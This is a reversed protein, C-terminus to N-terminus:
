GWPDLHAPCRSTVGWAWGQNPRENLRPRRSQSTAPRHASPSPEVSMSSLVSTSRVRQASRRDTNQQRLHPLSPFPCSYGSSVRVGWYGPFWRRQRRRWSVRPAPVSGVARGKQYIPCIQCPCGDVGLSSFLNEPVAGLVTWLFSAVPPAALQHLPQAHHRSHDVCNQQARIRLPIYAAVQFQCRRKGCGM